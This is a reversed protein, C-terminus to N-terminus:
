KQNVAHFVCYSPIIMPYPKYRWLYAYKPHPLTFMNQSRLHFLTSIVQDCVFNWFLCLLFVTPLSCHSINPGLCSPHLLCFGESPVLILSPVLFVKSISLFLVDIVCIERFQGMVWTCCFACRKCSPTKVVWELVYPGWLRAQAEARWGTGWRERVQQPTPDVLLDCPCLIQTKALSEEWIMQQIGWLGPLKAETCEWVMEPAKKGHREKCLGKRELERGM